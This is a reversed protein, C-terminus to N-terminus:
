EAASPFIGTAAQARVDLVKVLGPNGCVRCKRIPIADMGHFNHVDLAPLQNGLLTGLTFCVKLENYILCKSASNWAEKRRSIADPYEDCL